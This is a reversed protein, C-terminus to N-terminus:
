ADDEEDQTQPIRDPEGAHALANDILDAVHHDALRYFIHRGDRRRAVLGEARLLRLRQSVASLGERLVEALDSVCREGEALQALLRMRPTDGLARFIAAAREYAEPSAEAIRRPTHEPDGPRCAPAPVTTTKM